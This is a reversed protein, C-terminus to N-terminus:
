PEAERMRELKINCKASTLPLLWDSKNELIVFYEVHDYGLYNAFGQHARSMFRTWNHLQCHCHCHDHQRNYYFSGTRGTGVVASLDFQVPRLADFWSATKRFHHITITESQDPSLLDYRYNYYGNRQHKCQKSLTTDSLTAHQTHTILTTTM